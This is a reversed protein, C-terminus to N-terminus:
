KIQNLIQQLAWYEPNAFGTIMNHISILIVIFWIFYAVSGLIMPISAVGIYEPYEGNYWGRDTCKKHFRWFLTGAIIFLVLMIIDTIASVYAQRVLVEWLYEVTTGLKEALTKLMSTIEEKM